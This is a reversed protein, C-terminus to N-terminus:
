PTLSAAYASAVLIDDQSMGAVVPAMMATWAGNRNGKKMDYLQRAIYSPSRGALPPVPGIGRLDMGHCAVCATVKGGSTTDGKTVLTEGKKVSGPPVYATFGSRSNRLFETERINIPTEIIRSGIAEKGAGEGEIELWMGAQSRVKPVTDTEVVKIYNPTYKISTFYKAAADIEADTMKQAFSAMLGTNGKRIDSTKRAGAKFDKLQQVFYDYPLGTVNANEPRGYGNPYHCLSCAFINAAERGKAVIEPMPGHDGPHWDAPGFRNAVQARTFSLQSGPVSLKIVDDQPQPPNAAPPTANPPPPAPFGYAWPMPVDAQQAIAAFGTLTGIALIAATGLFKNM